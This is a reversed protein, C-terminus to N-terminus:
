AHVYKGRHTNYITPIIIGVIVLVATYAALLMIACSNILSCCPVIMVHM